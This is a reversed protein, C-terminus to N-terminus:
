LSERWERLAAVLRDTHEPRGVTIRVARGLRPGSYWRLWIGRRELFERLSAMPGERIFCLLFNAESPLPCVFELEQLRAFLRAREQVIKEVTALAEGPRRLCALAAASAAANVNYPPRIRNLLDALDPPLVAYGLRLGAMGAWKSLTRLVALNPYERLLPTVTQGCFEYYTEDVVVLRGTALLALLDGRPLLNGSPNNPSCVFIAKTKPTLAQLVGDVPVAFAADRPVELVEGRNLRIFFEYMGFTPTLNVAQEGPELTARLVLDILEDAGNGPVVQGADAGCYAALAERLQIYSPDPYLSPIVGALAARAEPTCGYPNENTDAKIEGDQLSAVQVAPPAQFCAHQQLDTRLLTRRESM